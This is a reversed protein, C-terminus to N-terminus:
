ETSTKPAINASKIKGRPEIFKAGFELLSPKILEWLNKPVSWAENIVQVRSSRDSLLLLDEFETCVFMGGFVRSTLLVIRQSDFLYKLERELSGRNEESFVLKGTSHVKIDNRALLAKMLPLNNALSGGTIRNKKLSQM